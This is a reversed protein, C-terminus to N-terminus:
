KPPAAKPGSGVQLVTVSKVAYVPIRTLSLRATDELVVYDQGVEVVEHGLATPEGDFVTLEYRGGSEKLIVPRGKGLVSFVGPAARGAGAQGWIAAPVAAIALLVFLLIWRKSNM